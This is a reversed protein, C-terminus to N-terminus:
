CAFLLVPFMSFLLPVAVPIDASLFRTPCCSASPTCSRTRLSPHIFDLSQLLSSPFVITQALLPAATPLWSLASLLRLAFFFPGCIFCVSRFMVFILSTLHYVCDFYNPLMVTFPPFRRFPTELVDPLCFCCTFILMTPFPQRRQHTLGYPHAIRIFSVRLSLILDTVTIRFHNMLSTMFYLFNM